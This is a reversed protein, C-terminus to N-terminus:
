KNFLTWNFVFLLFYLLLFSFFFLDWSLQSHRKIEFSRFVSLCITEIQKRYYFVIFLSKLNNNTTTKSTAIQKFTYIFTQTNKKNEKLFVYKFSFCIKIKNIKKQIQNQKPSQQNTHLQYSYRGFLWGSLVCM